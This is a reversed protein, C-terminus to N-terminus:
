SRTGNRSEIFTIIFGMVTRTKGRKANIAEPTIKTIKAEEWALASDM